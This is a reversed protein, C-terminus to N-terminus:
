TKLDNLNIKTAGAVFDTESVNGQNTSFIDRLVQKPKCHMQTTTHLIAKKLLTRKKQFNNISIGCFVDNWSVKSM